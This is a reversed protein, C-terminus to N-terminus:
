PFVHRQYRHYFQRQTERIAEPDTADLYHFLLVKQDWDVDVFISGPSLTTVLACVVIGTQSREGIPVAVIGPGVLPRRRLVVLIVAWTGWVIDALVALTFPVFYFLRRGLGPLPAPRGGFVFGRALLLLAASLLGGLLLDWPDFSALTLAYVLTLLVLFFLVRSM